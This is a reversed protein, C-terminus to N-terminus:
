NFWFPIERNKWESFSRKDRIYYNRYSSVADGIKCEVPMALAFPTLDGNEKLNPLNVMCWEIVDQSKHRKGYRHTYEECLSIGLDCLWIFNEICERAWISCPHNKHSLKYPIINSNYNSNTMHHVGCLLQATELLQKICHKNNHYEACKKPNLDLVFINM